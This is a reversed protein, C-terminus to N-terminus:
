KVRKNLGKIDHEQYNIYKEYWNTNNLFNIYDGKIVELFNIEIGYKEAFEQAFMKIYKKMVESEEKSKNEFVEDIHHYGAIPKSYGGTTMHGVKQPLSLFLDLFNSNITDFEAKSAYYARVIINMLIKEKETQQKVRQEDQDTFFIKNQKYACHRKLIEYADNIKSMMDNYHKSDKNQHADPHYLFCLKRYISKIEEENVDKLDAIEFINLAKYLDM